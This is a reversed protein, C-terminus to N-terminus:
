PSAIVWTFPWHPEALSIFSKSSIQPGLKRLVSIQKKPLGEIFYKMKGAFEAKRM